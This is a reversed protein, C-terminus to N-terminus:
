PLEQTVNIFRHTANFSQGRLNDAAHIRELGRDLPQAGDRANTPARRFHEHGFEPRIHASKRIGFM